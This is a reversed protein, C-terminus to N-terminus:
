NQNVGSITKGPVQYVYDTIEVIGLSNGQAFDQILTADIKGNNFRAVDQGVFKAKVLDGEIWVSVLPNGSIIYVKPNHLSSFIGSRFANIDDFSKILYEIGEIAAIEKNNDILDITYNVDTDTLVYYPINMDISQFTSLSVTLNSMIPNGIINFDIYDITKKTPLKIILEGSVFNKDKEVRDETTDLFSNIIRCSEVNNEASVNTCIPANTINFNKSPKIFISNGDKFTVKINGDIAMGYAFRSYQYGGDFSSTVEEFDYIDFNFDKFKIKIKDTKGQTQTLDFNYTEYRVYDEGPVTVSEIESDEIIKSNLWYSVTETRQEVRYPAGTIFLKPKFQVTSYIPINLNLDYGFASLNAKPVFYDGILTYQCENKLEFPSDENSSLFDFYDKSIAFCSKSNYISINTTKAISYVKRPNNTLKAKVYVPYYGLVDSFNPMESPIYNVNKSTIEFDKTAKQNITTPATCNKGDIKCILGSEIVVDIPGSCSRNSIRMTAKKDWDMTILGQSENQNEYILDVSLCALEPDPTGCSGAMIKGSLEPYIYTGEKANIKYELCDKGYVYSKNEDLTTNISGTNSQILKQESFSRPATDCNKYINIEASPISISDQGYKTGFRLYLDQGSVGALFCADKLELLSSESTVMVFVTSIRASGSTLTLVMWSSSNKNIYGNVSFEQNTKSPLNINTGLVVKKLKDSGFFLDGSGNSSINFSSPDGYYSYLTLTANSLSNELRNILSIRLPNVDDEVFLLRNNSSINSSEKVIINKGNNNIRYYIGTGLIEGVTFQRSMLLTETSGNQSKEKARYYFNLPEDDSNANIKFNVRVTYSGKPLPNQAWKISAIISDTGGISNCSSSTPYYYSDPRTRINGDLSSNDCKHGFQGTRPSIDPLINTIKGAGELRIMSLLESYSVNGDVVVDFVASYSSGPELSDATSYGSLHNDTTSYINDFFMNVRSSYYYRLNNNCIISNDTQLNCSFNGVKIGNSYNENLNTIDLCRNETPSKLCLQNNDITYTNRESPGGNNYDLASKPYLKVSFNNEGIALPYSSGNHYMFGNAYGPSKGVLYLNDTKKFAFNSKVFGSNTTTLTEILVKSSGSLYYVEIIGVIPNKTVANILRFSILSANLKVFINFDKTQNIDIFKEESIGSFYNNEVDAGASYNGPILYQYKANGLYDTKVGQQTIPINKIFVGGITASYYLYANAGFISKNTDKEKVIINASATNEPVLKELTVVEYTADYKVIQALFVKNLYGAKKVIAIVKINTDTFGHQRFLGNTDTLNTILPTYHITNSNLDAGFYNGNKDKQLEILSVSANAIALSNSDIVKFYVYRRLALPLFTLQIEITSSSAKTIIIKKNSTQTIPYYNEDNITIVYEGTTLTKQAVGSSNTFSYDNTNIKNFFVKIGPIAKKESGKLEYVFVNAIGEDASQKQLSIKHKDKTPDLNVSIGLSEYGPASANTIIFECNDKALKFSGDIAGDSDDKVTIPAGAIKINKCDYQIFSSGTLDVIKQLTDKDLLEVVAVGKFKVPEQPVKSLAIEYTKGELTVIKNEWPVYNEKKVSLQAIFLDKSGFFIAALIDYFNKKSGITQVTAIGKSDTIVQKFENENIAGSLQVGSLKTNNSADSITFTVEYPSSFRILYGALLILFFLFLLFLVFSPVFKDIPDIIKYVPVKPDIKDLVNYWKDELAYYFNQISTTIKQFIENGVM